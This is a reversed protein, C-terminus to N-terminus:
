LDGERHFSHLSVVLCNAALRLKIYLDDTVSAEDCGGDEKQYSMLYVDLWPTWQDDDANQYRVSHAFDEPRLESICRCVESFSYGLALAKHEVRRSEFLVAEEVALAKIRWLSSCCYERKETAKTVM